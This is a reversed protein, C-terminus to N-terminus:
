KKRKTLLFDIYDSVEAKLDAPLTDLKTLLQTQEM